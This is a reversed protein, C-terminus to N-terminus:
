SKYRELIAMMLDRNDEYWKLRRILRTRIYDERELDNLTKARLRRSELWLRSLPMLDLLCSTDTVPGGAQYYVQLFKDFYKLDLAFDEEYDRSWFELAIALDFALPHHIWFGTDVIAKVCDKRFLVNGSHYDGHCLGQPGLQHTKLNNLLPRIRNNLKPHNLGTLCMIPDPTYIWDLRNCYDTELPQSPGKINLAVYQFKAFHMVAQEFRGHNMVPVYWIHDQFDQDSLDFYRSYMVVQSERKIPKSIFHDMPLDNGLLLQNIEYIHLLKDYDHGPYVRTIIRKDKDVFTRQTTGLATHKNIKQM